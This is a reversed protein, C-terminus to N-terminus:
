LQNVLLAEVAKVRVTLEAQSPASINIHAIKRGPRESKGYDNLHVGPVSLLKSIDPRAGIVNLMAIPHLTETSGLPLGMVARVHNEFQSCASGEISWHGSNHVRPAIENAILEDGKVFFEFAMVGVYDLANMVSQAAQEAKSQLPHNILPQSKHLIGQRHENEVLPYFKCDGQKSRVSICSVEYDFAVFGELLMPVSGLETFTGAIDKNERIVKQGKGDYGLTRTKLVAPLGVKELGAELSAQDDVLALPATAINLSQFLSKENWRDRATDLAKAPPFAPLARELRAFAAAPVNEFEFTVADTKDTLQDLANEDAYDAIILDGCDGGCAQDSPDLLVTKIGLPLAAQAMMRGLQGGGVIALKM